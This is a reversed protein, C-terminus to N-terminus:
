GQHRKHLTSGESCLSMLYGDDTMRCGADQMRCRADQIRCGADQMRCRADQMRCGEINCFLHQCNI